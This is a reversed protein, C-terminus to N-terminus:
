RSSKEPVDETSLEVANSLTLTRLISLRSSFPKKSEPEIVAFEPLQDYESVAPNEFGPQVILPPPRLM